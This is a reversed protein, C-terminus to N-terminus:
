KESGLWPTIFCFYGIIVADFDGRKTKLPACDFPIGERTAAIVLRSWREADLEVVCSWSQVFNM